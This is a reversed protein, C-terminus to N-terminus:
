KKSRIKQEVYAKYQEKSMFLPRWNNLIQHLCSHAQRSGEWKIDRPDAKGEIWDLYLQSSNSYRVFQEYVRPIAAKEKEHILVCKDFGPLYLYFSAAEDQVNFEYLAGFAPLAELISEYGEKNLLVERVRREFEKAVANLNKMKQMKAWM